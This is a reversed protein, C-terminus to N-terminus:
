AKERDLELTRTHAGELKNRLAVLRPAFAGAEDVGSMLSRGFTALCFAMEMECEEGVAFPRRRAHAQGLIRGAVHMSRNVARRADLVDAMLGCADLVDAMLGCADQTEVDVPAFPGLDPLAIDDNAPQLPHEGSKTRDIPRISVLSGRPTEDRRPDRHSLALPDFLPHTALEANRDVNVAVAEEAKRSRVRHEM